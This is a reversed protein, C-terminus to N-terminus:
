GKPAISIDIYIEDGPQLHSVAEGRVCSFELSGSPTAEFFAKNEPNNGYVPSAKLKAGYTTKAIEDVTFKCRVTKEGM